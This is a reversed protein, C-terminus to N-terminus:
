SHPARSISARFGDKNGAKADVEPPTFNPGPMESAFYGLQSVSTPRTKPENDM